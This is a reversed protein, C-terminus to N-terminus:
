RVPIIIPLPQREGPSTMGADQRLSQDAPARLQAQVKRPSTVGSMSHVFRRVCIPRMGDLSGACNKDREM